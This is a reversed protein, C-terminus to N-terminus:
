RDSNHSHENWDETSVLGIVWMVIALVCVWGPVDSILVLTVAATGSIAFFWWVWNLDPPVNDENQPSEYPNESVVHCEKSLPFSLVETEPTLKKM